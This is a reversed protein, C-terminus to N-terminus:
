VLKVLISCLRWSEKFVLDSERAPQLTGELAISPRWKEAVGSVLKQPGAAAAHVPSEAAAKASQSREAALAEQTHMADRVRFLFWGGLALGSVLILMWGASLRKM